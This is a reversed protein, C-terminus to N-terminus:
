MGRAHEMGVLLEGWLGPTPEEGQTELSLSMLHAQNLM